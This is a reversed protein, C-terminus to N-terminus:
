ANAQVVARLHAKFDQAIDMRSLAL